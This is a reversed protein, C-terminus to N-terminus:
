CWRSATTPWGVCSRSSRQRARTTSSRPRSTSCCCTRGRALVGALAVRQREGGSLEDLLRGALHGAEVRALAEEADHRLRSPPVGIQELGFVVDRLVRRHVAQSEPDQFALGVRRGTSVVASADV